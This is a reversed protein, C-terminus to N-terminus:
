TSFFQIWISMAVIIIVCTGLVNVALKEIKNKNDDM